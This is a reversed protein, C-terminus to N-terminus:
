KIPLFLRGRRSCYFFFIFDIETIKWKLLNERAKKKNNAINMALPTHTRVNVAISIYNLKIFPDHFDLQIKGDKSNEIQYRVVFDGPLRKGFQILRKKSINEKADHRTCIFAYSRPKVRGVVSLANIRIGQFGQIEISTTFNTANVADIIADM